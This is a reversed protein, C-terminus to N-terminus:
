GEDDEDFDVPDNPSAAFFEKLNSYNEDADVAIINCLEIWAEDVYHMSEPKIDIMGLWSLYSMPLAVDAWEFFEQWTEHKKAEDAYFIWINGLIEVKSSFPTKSM